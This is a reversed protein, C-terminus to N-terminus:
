GVPEKNMERLMRYSLFGIVLLVLGLALWILRSDSLFAVKPQDNATANALAHVGLIPANEPQTALFPTQDYVPARHTPDSFRLSYVQGATLDALLYTAIQYARVQTLALPPDDNNNIVIFLDRANVSPLRVGNSDALNLEFAKITEFRSTTRGRKGRQTIRQQVEAQRHYPSANASWVKVMDFRAPTSRTLHIYTHRDSSDRYSMAVGPIPLYPISTAVPSFNGVRLINLPASTSDNIELRYYAYDTRPFRLLQTHTTGPGNPSPGLRVANDIAYWTQADASGSLRANKRVSTNAMMVGLSDVGPLDVGPSDVGPSDVGLSNVLAPGPKRIVLTTTAGPTAQKSVIAYTLFQTTDTPLQRILRYPVERGQADYLRVDTLDNNLRGMVNPPLSIRHFGSKPITDVTARFRFSQAQITLTTLLSATLYLIRRM